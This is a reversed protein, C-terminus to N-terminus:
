QANREAVIVKFSDPKPTARGGPTEAPTMEACPLYVTGTKSDIAMTRAGASTKLTQVMEFKGPATERVIVLTGDACSAMGLGANFVTADVGPGIPIDAAISGDKTSMIIFHNNRCGIFLYGNERDISMGTSSGGPAISWKDTIKLTKTDIVAVQAKDSLNVYVKGKGDAALFEPKGDLDIKAEAKGNVPDVDAAIAILAAADGCAVFVHHSSADYIVGDSDEATAVHGLVAYTKTDFIMVDGKDGDTIFGRNLEPVLATGHNHTSGPIDAVVKGSAVDVVMTHTVRPLYLLKGDADLTAYDWGGAGGLDITKAVKYPEAAPTQALVMSAAGVFVISVLGFFLGKSM